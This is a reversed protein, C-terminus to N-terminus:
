AVTPARKARHIGRKRSRRISAPLAINHRRRRGRTVDHVADGERPRSRRMAGKRGAGRRMSFLEIHEVGCQSSWVGRRRRM